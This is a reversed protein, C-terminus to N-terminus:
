YDERVGELPATSLSGHLWIRDACGFAVEPLQASDEIRRDPAQKEQGESPMAIMTATRLTSAGGPSGVPGAGSRSGQQKRRTTPLRSVVSSRIRFNGDSSEPLSGGEFCKASAGWGATGFLMWFTGITDRSSM